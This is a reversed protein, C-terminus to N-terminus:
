VTDIRLTSRDGRHFYDSKMSEPHEALVHHVATIKKYKIVCSLANGM